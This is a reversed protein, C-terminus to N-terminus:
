MSGKDDSYVNATEQQCGYEDEGSEHFRVVREAGGILYLIIQFRPAQKLNNWLEDWVYTGHCHPCELKCQTDIQQKADM